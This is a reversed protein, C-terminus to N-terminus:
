FNSTMPQFFFANSTSLPFTHLFPDEQQLQVELNFLHHCSVHASLYASTMSLLDPTEEQKRRQLLLSITM